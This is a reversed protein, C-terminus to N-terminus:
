VKVTVAALPHVDDGDPLTVILAWGGVGVAGTMPVIVWGVQAVPVPLTTSVDSGEEPVHVTVRIGPLIVVKPLPVVMVIVLRAEPM